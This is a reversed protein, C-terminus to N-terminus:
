KMALASAVREIVDREAESIREGGIGLIGGEKAANAVKEGVALSWHKYENAEQETCKSQLVVVVEQCKDIAIDILLQWEQADFDTKTSM